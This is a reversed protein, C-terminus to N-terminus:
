GTNHLGASIGNITAALARDLADGSQGRQRRRLLGIQLWSLADVYPNRLRISRALVPNRELAERQESVRLIWRRTREFEEEIASFVRVRLAEDEVLSAYERAIGLDAKVLALEVNDILSRFLPFARYMAALRAARDPDSGAYSELSYGVGFWGPLGHRSQM